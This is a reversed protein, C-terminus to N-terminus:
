KGLTILLGERVLISPINGTQDLPLKKIKKVAMLISEDWVADGSGRTVRVSKVVGDAEVKFLIEITNRKDPDLNVVSSRILNTLTRIYELSPTSDTAFNSPTSEALESSKIQLPERVSKRPSPIEDVLRMDIKMDRAVRFGINRYRDTTTAIGRYASRLDGYRSGFSGGRIVRFSSYGGAILASGDSPAEVYNPSAGDQVYEWVNGHMDHLGFSNSNFRGVVGLASANNALSPDFKEGWPYATTTGARAAYEWEAETPLRYSHGTLSSLRKIYEQVDGYTVSEIPCSSGCGKFYSPNDKMISVWESQTVEYIGLMFSNVRVMRQPGEDVFRGEEHLPSGMLFNGSPIVTLAPCTACDRIIKEARLPKSAGSIGGTHSSEFGGFVGAIARMDSHNINLYIGSAGFGIALTLLFYFVISRYGLILAKLVTVALACLNVSKKFVSAARKVSATPFNQRGSFDNAPEPADTRVVYANSSFIEKPNNIKGVHIVQAISLERLSRNADVGIAEDGSATPDTSKYRASDSQYSETRMNDGIQKPMM